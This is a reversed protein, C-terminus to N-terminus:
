FINLKSRVTKDLFDLIAMRVTKLPFTSHKLLRVRVFVKPLCSKLITENGYKYYLFNCGRWRVGTLFIISITNKIKIKFRM